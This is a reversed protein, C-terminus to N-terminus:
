ALISGWLKPDWAGDVARERRWREKGFVVNAVMDLYTPLM